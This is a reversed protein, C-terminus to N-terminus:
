VKELPWIGVKLPAGQLLLLPEEEPTPLGHSEIMNTRLCRLSAQRLPWPPHHIRSRYLTGGRVTYLCYREVLFFELTGPAAQPLPDGGRWEASFDARAGGRHKRVSRYRVEEGEEALEMSARYYPLGFALRAAAVALPNSAELSLFWVGPVGDLHVYTRVNLEHSSSAFPLPPLFPPRINWMTFPTLTIWASGERDTDIELRPPVLRRILPAPIRWNLFLLKGWTQYMLPIGEPRQRIGTRDIRM